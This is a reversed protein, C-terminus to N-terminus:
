EKEEKEQGKNKWHNLASIKVPRMRPRSDKLSGPTLLPFFREAVELFLVMPSNLLIALEPFKSVWFSFISVPRYPIDGEQNHDLDYGRYNDWYNLSFESTNRRSNTTVDFNNSIFNNEIFKNDYSNSYIEAAWGNLIFLNKKFLNRNSANLFIGWTNESFTNEIFTSDVIEKILFGYSANGRGKEFLNQHVRLNRSYMIAVGTPNNSFINKKFINKHSFMFHMGFRLNDHSYNDEILSDETFELYLGDRQGMVENGSVTINKSYFLHVGNGSTVENKADGHIHNNEIICQEVKEFYIAYTNNKFTNGEFRCNKSHEVRIGAFDSIYSMGSNQIVLGKINVGNSRIYFVHGEHQGDIVPDGIGIINLRKNISIVGELYKGPEIFITDGDSALHVAKKVSKVPCSKCVHIDNSAFLPPSLLYTLQLAMQTIFFLPLSCTHPTSTKM